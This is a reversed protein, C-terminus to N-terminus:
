NPRDFSLLLSEVGGEIVDRYPLFGASLSGRIAIKNEKAHCIFCKCDQPFLSPVVNLVYSRLMAKGLGRGIFQVDGIFLDVAVGDHEGMESAFEPYDRLLYCQLKGFPEGNYCAIHCHTPHSPSLRESYKRQVEEITIPTKQYHARMHPSNLWECLMPFDAETLSRFDIM